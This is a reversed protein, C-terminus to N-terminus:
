TSKLKLALENALPDYEMIRFGDLEEGSVNCLEEVIADALDCNCTILHEALAQAAKTRKKGLEGRYAKGWKNAIAYISALAGVFPLAAVTKFRTKKTKQFIAYPLILNAIQDHRARSYDTAAESGNDLVEKCHDAGGLNERNDYIDQLGKTHGSSKIASRAALISTAVMIAGGTAALGIGTASLAAGSVVAAAVAQTQGAGTLSKAASLGKSAVSLGKTVASKANRRRNRVTAAAEHLVVTELGSDEDEPDKHWTPGVPLSSL